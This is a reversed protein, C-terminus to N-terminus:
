EATFQTNQSPDKLLDCRGATDLPLQEKWEELIQWKGGKLEALRIDRACHHTAGDMKLTGAPGVWTAGAELAEIVKEREATGAARVATAWLWTAEYAGISINNQYVADAGYKERYSTLFAKNITNDIEELYSYSAVIGESESAPLMTHENGAGFTFSLIPIKGVMGAAAWQRYFGLHAAGVLTSCVFDPKAAQIKTILPGFETVDLPFFENAVQTAGVAEGYKRAWDAMIRPANYDAGISYMKGGWTKVAWEIAGKEQMAPTIGTCFANRDCVGGEYQTSYFYLANYRKLIPRIVERSASTIGGNVFDVRDQLAAQQAYQAYLQMNSQTDYSVIELESGNLGGSANIEDVAMQMVMQMPKGYIDLGGSLDLISAMKVTSAARANRLVAPSMIATM